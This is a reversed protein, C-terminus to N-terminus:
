RKRRYLTQKGGFRKLFKEPIDVNHLCLNKMFHLIGEFNMWPRLLGSKHCFNELM